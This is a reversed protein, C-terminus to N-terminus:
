PLLLDSIDIKLVASLKDLNDITANTAGNEIESIFQRSLGAKESLTEQTMARKARWNRLNRALRERSTELKNPSSM